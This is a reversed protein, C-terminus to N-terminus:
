RGVQDDGLQFGGHLLVAVARGGVVVEGEDGQPQQLALDCGNVDCTVFRKTAPGRKIQVYLNSTTHQIHSLHRRSPVGWRWRGELKSQLWSWFRWIQDQGADGLVHRPFIEGYKQGLVHELM